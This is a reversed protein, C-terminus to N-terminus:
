KHPKGLGSGVIVGNLNILIGRRGEVTYAFVIEHWVQSLIEQTFPAVMRSARSRIGQWREVYVDANMDIPESEVYEKGCFPLHRNAFCYARLTNLAEIASKREDPGGHHIGGLPANEEFWLYLCTALSLPDTFACSPLPLLLTSSGAPKSLDDNQFRCLHFLSCPTPAGKKWLRYGAVITARWPVNMPFTNAPQNLSELLSLASDFVQKEIAELDSSKQSSGSM